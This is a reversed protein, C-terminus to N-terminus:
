KAAKINNIISKELNGLKSSKTIEKFRIEYKDTLGLKRTLSLLIENLTEKKTKKLDLKKENFFTIPLSYYFIEKIKIKSKGKRVIKSPEFVDVIAEHYYIFEKTM